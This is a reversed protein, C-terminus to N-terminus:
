KGRLLQKINRRDVHDKLLPTDENSWWLYGSHVWFGNNTGNRSIMPLADKDGRKGAVVKRSWGTKMDKFFYIGYANGHAAPNRLDTSERFAVCAAFSRPVGPIDSLSSSSYGSWRDPSWRSLTRTVHGGRDWTTHNGPIEIRQGAHILSPSSLQPNAAEVAALSVGHSAAIRSLTDGPKVLYAVLAIAAFM